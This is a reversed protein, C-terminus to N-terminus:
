FKKTWIEIAKLAQQKLMLRGNIVKLGKKEGERLFSSREPVYNLDYLYTDKTFKTLKIPSIDHNINGLTTANIIINFNETTKIDQLSYFKKVGEFDKEKSKDRFAMYINAGLLKLGKLVAKAGGGSGLILANKEKLDINNEKISETFGYIDTNYGYLKSDKVLVTNCAKTEVVNEDKFDLYKIINEKYPKTINFGRVNTKEEKVKRIFEDLENEKLDLISYTLDINHNNYYDNHIKPSSSYGINEGILFVKM